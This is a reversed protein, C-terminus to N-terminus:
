SQGREALLRAVPGYSRRYCDLIPLTALIELHAKTPYGKHAAFGYEPYIKDLEYLDADRATKALISAASIEPVRSDGKVVTEVMVGLSSITAPVRNGDVLVLNCSRAMADYARRMALFTANLINLEDIEQPSARGIGWAVAQEKIVPALADRAKETLKKSDNLGEIMNNHDLIVCAAVVDGMLPGRGAEDVGCVLCHRPDVPYVFPEDPM